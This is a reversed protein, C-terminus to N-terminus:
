KKFEYPKDRLKEVTGIKSAWDIWSKNGGEVYTELPISVSELKQLEEKPVIEGKSLKEVALKIVSDLLRAPKGYIENRPDDEPLLALQELLSPISYMAYTGAGGIPFGGAWIFDNKKVFQEYINLAVNNHYYELYGACSIALLLRKKDDIKGEQKAATVIDMMKITMYPASDIYLPSSLLIIESENISSIMEETKESDKLIGYTQFSRVTIGKGELLNTVYSGLSYSASKEGRPSCMLFTAKKSM